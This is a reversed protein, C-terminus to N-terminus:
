GLGVMGDAEQFATAFEQLLDNGFADKRVGVMIVDERGRLKPRSIIVRGCISGQAKHVMGLGRDFHAINHQDEEKVDLAEKVVEIDWASDSDEPVEAEGRRKTFPDAREERISVDLQREISELQVRNM